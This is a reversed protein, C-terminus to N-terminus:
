DLEIPKFGNPINYPFSLREDFELNRYELNIRTVAAGDLAELSIKDPVVKGSIEQYSEYAINLIRGKEPQSLQQVAMKFNNPELLFLLKFLEMQRDPTLLYYNESVSATYRQDKLDFISQGLLLNQVMDFNVETGLLKNLLAFDGDFYTNDLKNYFSVREPTILVKVVSLTASLWIAEDKKMRLSVSFGQNTAADAYDIKVRGRLTEFNVDNRYHNRIIQRASLDSEVASDSVVKKSGCSSLLALFFCLSLGRLVSSGSINILRKILKRKM